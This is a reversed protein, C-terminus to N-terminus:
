CHKRECWKACGRFRTIDENDLLECTGTWFEEHATADWEHRLAMRRVAATADVSCLGTM